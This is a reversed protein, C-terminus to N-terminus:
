VSVAAMTELGVPAVSGGVNLKPVVLGTLMVPAVATVAINVIM